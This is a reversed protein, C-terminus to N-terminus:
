NAAAAGIASVRPDVPPVIPGDPLRPTEPLSPEPLSIDVEVPKRYPLPATGTLILVVITVTLAVLLGALLLVPWGPRSGRESGADRPPTM